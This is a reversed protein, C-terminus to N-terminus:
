GRESLRAMVTRLQDAYKELFEPSDAPLGTMRRVIQPLVSPALTAAFLIVGVYAPDLDEALEGAQQRRRVDDVMAAFYDGTEADDPTGAALGETEGATLGEWALLRAWARQSEDAPLFGTVIEAMPLDPRPAGGTTEWTRQLARYLGDKGDFYYSILQQNVGARAAIAGTRAGAFGHESFEILAADLIREKTREPDRKRQDGSPSRRPM